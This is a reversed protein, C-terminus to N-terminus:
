LTSDMKFFQLSPILNYNEYTLIKIENMGEFLPLSIDDRISHFHLSQHLVLFPTEMGYALIQIEDMGEFHFALIM